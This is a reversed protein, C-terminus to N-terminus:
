MPGLIDWQALDDPTNVNALWLPNVDPIAVVSQQNLWGQFSRKGTKLYTQWSAGCTARYFGCLPEWRDRYRPLYAMVSPPLTALGSVWTQLARANLYPLDCALVLVWTPPTAGTALVSTVEALAVLPGPRRGDPDAAASEPWVEIRAPLISRYREGWPTVVYVRSACGMAVRCTRQLLPEGNRLMLAKDFGMRRSQGGALVLAVIVSGDVRSM